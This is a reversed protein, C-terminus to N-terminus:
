EVHLLEKESKTLVKAGNKSIYVIDEIRVGCFDPIYIGPEVTVVNGCTLPKDNKPSLNPSEHIDLGVSHGLAHGFMGKYDKDIINQAINHVDLGKVGKKVNELATKQALLVTDYVKKKEKDIDGVAFTRTIDSCYGEYVCGFDLVVLDGYELKKTTPFAHPLAGREGSACITDFSGGSAGNRKMFFDIENAIEIETTGCKAFKLIHSFAKDAIEVAKKISKIEDASKVARFNLIMNDIAILNKFMKSFSIYSNYSISLNEFGTACFKECLKNVDTEKFDIIEFLPCQEICQTVYRFDTILYLNDFTIILYASTGTYGSYYFVNKLDTVLISDLKKKLMAKRLKEIRTKRIDAM